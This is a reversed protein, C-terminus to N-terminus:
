DVAKRRRLTVTGQFEPLGRSRLEMNLDAVRRQAETASVDEFQAVIVPTALDRIRDILFEAEEALLVAPAVIAIEYVRPGAHFQEFDWRTMTRVCDYPAWTVGGDPVQYFVADEETRVYEGLVEPQESEFNVVVYTTTPDAQQTSM